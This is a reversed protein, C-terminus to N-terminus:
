LGQPLLLTLILVLVLSFIGRAVDVTMEPIRSLPAVLSAEADRCGLKWPRKCRFPCTSVGPPATSLTSYGAPGAPYISSDGRGPPRSGPCGPSGPPRFRAFVLGFLGPIDGGSGADAAPAATAALPGGSQPRLRHGPRRCHSHIDGAAAAAVALSGAGPGLAGAIYLGTKLAPSRGIRKWM